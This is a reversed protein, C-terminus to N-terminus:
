ILEHANNHSKHVLESFRDTILSTQLSLNFLPRTAFSKKFLKAVREKKYKKCQIIVLNNFTNIM